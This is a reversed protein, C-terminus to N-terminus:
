KLCGDWTKKGESQWCNDDGKKRQSNERSKEINKETAYLGEIRDWSFYETPM